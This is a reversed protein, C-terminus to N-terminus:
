HATRLTWEIARAVLGHHEEHSEPHPSVILLRGKGYRVAGIAAQGVM